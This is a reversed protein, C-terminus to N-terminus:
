LREGLAEALFARAEGRKIELKRSVTDWDVPATYDTHALDDSDLILRDALSFQELLSSFRAAGRQRNAYVLFPKHFLISFVAGHFSDTFVFGAQSLGSLWGGVPEAVQGDKVVANQVYTATMGLRAAIQRVAAQKDPTRDLVYVWLRGRNDPEDATAATRCTGISGDGPIPGSFLKRYDAPTLLLTPDLVQRAEKGFHKECLAVASAERVSVADFRKLLSALRRTPKPPLLWEDVGFSAAYAIRRGKFGAPLFEFFYDPLYPSYEPRWVQDSGVIFADYGEAALRRMEKERTIAPTRPRIHQEFFPRTHQSVIRLPRAVEREYSYVVPLRRNSLLYKKVVRKASILCCCLRGPVKKRRDILWAEHGCQALYTQLAFAQLMGGYNYYLPLTLIGIKM